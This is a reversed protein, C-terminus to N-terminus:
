KEVEKIKNSKKIYFTIFEPIQTIGLIIFLCVASRIGRTLDFATLHTKGVFASYTAVLILTVYLSTRYNRVQSQLVLEKRTM